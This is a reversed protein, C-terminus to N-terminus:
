STGADACCDTPVHSETSVVDFHCCSCLFLVLSACMNAHGALHTHCCVPQYAGPTEAIANLNEVTEVIIGGHGRLELFPAIIDDIVCVDVDDKPVLLDSVFAEFGTIKDPWARMFEPLKRTGGRLQLGLDSEM